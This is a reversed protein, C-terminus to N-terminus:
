NKKLENSRVLVDQDQELRYRSGSLRREELVLRAKRHADEENEATVWLEMKTSSDDLLVRYAPIRHGWWLQRSICWDRTNELWRYWQNEFQRPYIEIDGAMSLKKVTDAMEQCRLYRVNFRHYINHNSTGNHNSYLNLSTVPVRAGESGCLMSSMVV